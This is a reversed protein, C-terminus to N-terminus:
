QGIIKKKLTKKFEKFSNKSIITKPPNKGAMWLCDYWVCRFQGITPDWDVSFRKCKHCQYMDKRWERM